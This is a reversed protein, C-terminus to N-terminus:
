QEFRPVGLRQHFSSCWICWEVDYTPGSVSLFRSIITVFNHPTNFHKLTGCRTRSGTRMSIALAGHLYTLTTIYLQRHVTASITRRPEISLVVDQRPWGMWWRHGTYSRLSPTAPPICVTTRPRQCPRVAFRLILRMTVKRVPTCLHSRPAVM